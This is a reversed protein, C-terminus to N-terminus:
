TAGPRGASRQRAALLELLEAQSGVKVKGYVASLHNRVTGASLGLNAAIAPVRSGAALASVIELERNTLAALESLDPSVPRRASPVALGAASVEQSIRLLRMELQQIRQEPSTAATESIPRLTFAFCPPADLSTLRARCWLWLRDARRVRLRVAADRGTSHVHALGTLLEGVDLPHVAPLISAGALRQPLYGLVLRVETSIRDVCWQEDVTGLVRQDDGGAPTLHAASQRGGLAVFVAGHRAPRDDGLAHAWVYADIVAGDCRRLRRPAEFGELRGTALLALGGTPEDVVFDGVPKGVLEERTGRLLEAASDSVSGLRRTALDVQAVALRSSAIAESMDAGDRLGVGDAPRSSM